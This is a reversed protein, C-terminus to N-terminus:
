RLGDIRKQLAAIKDRVKEAARELDMEEKAAAIAREFHFSVMGQSNHHELAQSKHEGISEKADEIMGLTRNLEGYLVEMDRELEPLDNLTYKRM